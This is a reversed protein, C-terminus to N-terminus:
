GYLFRVRAQRREIILWTLCFVLADVRDPSEGKKALEEPNFTVMQEELQEFYQTHFVRHQEYLAGVPEARLRKGRSSYLKTFPISTGGKANRLTHEVLDGGNNVEGLVRDAKWRSFLKVVTDAWENPKYHGSADELVDAHKGDDFSGCVIIGTEDSGEGSSVAPDVAICIREYDDHPRQFAHRMINDESFIAGDISELYLGEIEQKGLRTGQYRETITRLFSEPLNDKNDYMSGRTMVLGQLKMIRRVFATPKPTTTIVMQPRPGLRMGFVAMDFTEPAKWAALEDAWIKEHQPGRLREPEEASFATATAGNPWILRRKSPEYKPLFDETSIPIIGSNHTVTFESGVLFTGSPHAVQICQTDHPDVPVVGTITKYMNRKPTGRTAVREAKRALCFPPRSGRPVYCSWSYIEACTYVIGRIEKERSASQTIAGISYGLSRALERTDQVLQLDTGCFSVRGSKGACGDTDLLGCLLSFRQEISGRLYQRPIHKKYLVGLKKLGPSLGLIGWKYEAPHKNVAYGDERIRNVVGVDSNQQTFTGSGVTGDGLWAGLTYPRVIEEIPDCLIPQTLPVCFEPRIGLRRAEQHLQVTTKICAPSRSDRAARSQVLWSHQADAIIPEGSRVSVAYCSRRSWVRSKAVVQTRSGDSSFVEDGVDLAEITSWGVPTPVLTDLALAEGEMMVDRVDAATPGILAARM